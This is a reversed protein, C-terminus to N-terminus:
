QAIAQRIAGAVEEVDVHDCGREIEHVVVLQEEGAGDVSFAAGCGSRLVPSAQEVTQEIDQPHHNQGRVIVVDKSRGVVFLEGDRVFGLDGTRLFPGEGTDSLYAHFTHRTEDPRNWYGLAVSEGSVWIEGVQEAPCRVLSDPDVIAIEQGAPPRGC